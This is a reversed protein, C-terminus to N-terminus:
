TGASAPSCGTYRSIATTEHFRINSFGIYPRAPNVAATSGTSTQLAVVDAPMPYNPDTPRILNDGRAGVYSVELSAGTFLRRTVGINWQMTRPNKFDTATGWGTVMGRTTATTGAGPNSFSPSITNTSNNFPPNYFADWEFIGVLPQDYYIGYSARVIM